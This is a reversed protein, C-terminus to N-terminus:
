NRGLGKAEIAVALLATSLLAPALAARSRAELSLADLRLLVRSLREVSWRSVADAVLSKRQFHVPPRMTDVIRQAPRGESEMQGCALHLTQFHRQLAMIIQVPSTGRALLRKLGSEMVAIRGTAAADVIQDIVLGAADGVIGTVHDVDIEGDSLAYLCLKSVEQRSAARDGGLLSKLVERAPRTMTLQHLALEEDIM